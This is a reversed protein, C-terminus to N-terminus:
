FLRFPFQFCLAKGRTDFFEFRSIQMASLFCEGSDDIGSISHVHGKRRRIVGKCDLCRLVATKSHRLGQSSRHEGVV